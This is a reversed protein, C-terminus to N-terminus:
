SSRQERRAQEAIFLRWGAAAELEEQSIQVSRNEQVFPNPREMPNPQPAMQPWVASVAEALGVTRAAALSRRPINQTTPPMAPANGAVAVDAQTAINPWQPTAPSPVPGPMAPQPNLATTTTIPALDEHTVATSPPSPMEATGGNPQPAPVPKEMRKKAGLAAGATASWSALAGNAVDHAVKAAVQAGKDSSFGLLTALGKLLMGVAADISIGLISSSEGFYARAYSLGFASTPVILSSLIADVLHENRQELEDVRRQEKQALARYKELLEEVQKQDLAAAM